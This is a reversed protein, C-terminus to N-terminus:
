LQKQRSWGFGQGVGSWIPPGDRSGLPSSELGNRFVAGDLGEEPVEVVWGRKMMVQLSSGSRELGSFDQVVLVM